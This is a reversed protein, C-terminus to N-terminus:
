TDFLKELDSNRSIYLKKHIESYSRWGEPYRRTPYKFSEDQLIIDLHGTSIKPLAPSKSQNRFTVLTNIDGYKQLAQGVAQAYPTDGDSRLWALQELYDHSYRSGPAVTLELPERGFVMLHLGQQRAIAYEIMSAAITVAVEFSSLPADGIDAEQRADLVVLFHPRDHSEYERVILTQTRASAGWHIHKLNDGFRYERVGSYENQMAPHATQHYGDIASIDSRFTPLHAINFTHPMIVLQCPPTDISKSLNVFGFPWSSGISIRNLTFVGRRDCDIDTTFTTSGTTSPLFHQQGTQDTCCPLYENLVIHYRPRPTDIQYRLRLMRGAQASGQQTRSVRVTRVALWPLLWSLAQVALILSFLGYLLAIGRNWAILFCALALLWLFRHANIHRALWDLLPELARELENHASM